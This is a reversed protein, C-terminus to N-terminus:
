NALYHTTFRAFGRQLAACGLRTYSLPLTGAKWAPRSPEIGKVRELEKKKFEGRLVNEVATSFQSRGKYIM